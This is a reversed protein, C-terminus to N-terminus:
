RPGAGFLDLWRVAQPRLMFPFGGATKLAHQFRRVATPVDGQELAFLGLRVTVDAYQQMAIPLQLLNGVTAPQGKPFLGLWFPSTAPRTLASQGLDPFVLWQLIGVLPPGIMAAPNPPEPGLTEIATAMDGLAVATKLNFSKFRPQLEAPLV